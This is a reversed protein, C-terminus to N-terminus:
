RAPTVRNRAVEFGRIRLMALFPRPDDLAFWAAERVGRLSRPLERWPRAGNSRGYYSPWTPPDFSEVWWRRGAPAPGAATAQGTLDAYAVRVVDLGADDVFLRFNAGVRPNVDLLLYRDTAADHRFEADVLGRYGCARLLEVAARRVRENPAVVGLTTPGAGPPHERLKQGVYGALCTSTADFYGHFFWVGDTGGAIFEQLLLNPRVGGAGDGVVERLGGLDYVKRVSVAGAAWDIARPDAAKVMLPFGVEGAFAEAEVLGSVAHTRPTALGHDGTLRTLEGKDALSRALGPASRSFRYHPALADAADDIFMASGDGIPLLVPPEDFGGALGVLTTLVADRDDPDIGTSATVFRSGALVRRDGAAVLHVRVGLRGLSRIVGLAGHALRGEGLKLVVAAATPSPLAAASV